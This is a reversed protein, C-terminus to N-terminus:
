PAPPTRELRALLGRAVTVLSEYRPNAATAAIFDKYSAIAAQRDGSMEEAMGLSLRAEAMEPQLELTRKFCPVADAARRQQMYNRGLGYWPHPFQPDVEIARRYAREADQYRGAERLVNGLNNAYRPDRPGTQTALLLQKAADDLDGKGALALGLANHVEPRDPQLTAVTRLVVLADDTRGAKLLIVGYHYRLDVSSPSLELAHRYGEIARDLDGASNSADALAAIFPPNDPDAAVIRELIPMATQRDGHRLALRATDYDRLLGVMVKPDEQKKGPAAATSGGGLYGLSELRARAERDLTVRAAPGEGSALPVLAAALQDADPARGPLLNHEEAPDRALDYLEPEPSAIYKLSGRRLAAIPSWGFTVAYRSEAYIDEAAPERGAALAAELDHGDVGAQGKPAAISLLDLVTPAVDVLSVPTAVVSGAPLVDPARIIVPVHLSGQYLLLGHTMEGHEGLAEGHDGVVAVITHSAQGSRQLWELLRGIEYDVEAIEGDYPRDAFLTRYPEPPEYPAHADYLHVWAFFPKDSAAGLWALARDVVVRGPREADLGASPDFPIDDDYTDFGHSFGFRRDLVFAGIFAGTRYGADSLRTALTPTTDALREAGNNRVGHHPPLLGTLISAHSPATLPVESSADAFRVGEKALKDLNPTEGKRYGWAGIHDARVTDITVLLLNFGKASTAQRPRSCASDLAALGALCSAAVIIGAVPRAM